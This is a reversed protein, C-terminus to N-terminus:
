MQLQMRGVLIIKYDQNLDNCLKIIILQLNIRHYSLFVLDTVIYVKFKNLM